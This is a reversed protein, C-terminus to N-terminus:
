PWKAYSTQCCAPIYRRIVDNVYAAPLRWESSEKIGLNIRDIYERQPSSPTIHTADVYVLLEVEDDLMRSAPGEDLQTEAGGTSQNAETGLSTETTCSSSSDRLLDLPSFDARDIKITCKEYAFGVGEYSDLTAEDDPHLRYLGTEHTVPRKNAVINACGRENIVWLHALRIPTSRPCRNRM